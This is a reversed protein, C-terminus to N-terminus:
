TISAVSDITVNAVLDTLIIRLLWSRRLRIRDRRRIPTPSIPKPFFVPRAFIYLLGVGRGAVPSASPPIFPRERLSPVLGKVKKIDNV